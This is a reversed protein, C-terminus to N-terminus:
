HVVQNGIKGSKWINTEAKVDSEDDHKGAKMSEEVTVTTKGYITVSVPFGSVQFRSILLLYNFGFYM